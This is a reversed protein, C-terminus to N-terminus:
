VTIGEIFLFTEVDFSRKVLEELAEVGFRETAYHGGFVANIRHERSANLAVLSPEGSIFVDLGDRAAQEVMEGAAGSVVCASQVTKKGFDFCTCRNGVTREVTHTVEEITLPEPFEGRFGIAVGHYSGFRRLRRLGLSAALRANNGYVPHADLPLHCAYLAVDNRVLRSVIDYRWGTLPRPTNEWFLGHHCVILQAKRKRAEDVAASSADVTFLVREVTGSNAVQLGNVAADDIDRCRLVDDLFGTIRELKEM